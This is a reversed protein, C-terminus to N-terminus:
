SNKSNAPRPVYNGKPAEYPKYAPREEDTKKGQSMMFMDWSDYFKNVFSRIVTNAIGGKTYPTARWINYEGFSTKSEKYRECVWESFDKWDKDGWWPLPKSFGLAREFMKPALDRVQAQEVIESTIPAGVAIANEISLPQDLLAIGRVELVVDVLSEAFRARNEEIWAHTFTHQKLLGEIKKRLERRLTTM